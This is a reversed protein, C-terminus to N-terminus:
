DPLAVAVAASLGKACALKWLEAEEQALLLARDVSPAIRNFVADNELRGFLRHELYSWPNWYM